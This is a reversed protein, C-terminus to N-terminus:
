GSVSSPSSRGCEGSRSSSTLILLPWCRGLGKWVERHTIYINPSPIPVHCPYGRASDFAARNPSGPSPESHNRLTAFVSLQFKVGNVGNEDKKLCRKNERHNATTLICRRPRLQEKNEFAYWSGLSSTAPELGM